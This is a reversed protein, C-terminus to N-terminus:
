AFSRRQKRRVKALSSYNTLGIKNDPQSSFVNSYSKQYREFTCMIQSGTVSQGSVTVTVSETEASPVNNAVVWHGTWPGNQGDEVCNIIWKGNEMWVFHEVGFPAHFMYRQTNDVDNM